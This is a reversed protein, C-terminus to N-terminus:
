TAPEFCKLYLERICSECWYTDTKRDYILPPLPEGPKLTYPEGCQSCAFYDEYSEANAATAESTTQIRQGAQIERKAADFEKSRPPHTRMSKM